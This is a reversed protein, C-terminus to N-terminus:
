MFITKSVALSIQDKGDGREKGCKISNAMIPDVIARIPNHTRLSKSSAPAVWSSLPSSNTTDGIDADSEVSISSATDLSTLKLPEDDVDTPALSPPLAPSSSTSTAPTINVGEQDINKVNSVFIVDTDFDVREDAAIVLSSSDNANNSPKDMTSEITIIIIIVLLHLEDQLYQNM